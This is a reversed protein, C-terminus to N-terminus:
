KHVFRQNTDIEKTLIFSLLFVSISKYNLYEEVYFSSQRSKLYVSYDHKVPLNICRVVVNKRRIIQSIANNTKM